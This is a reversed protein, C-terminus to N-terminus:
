QKVATIERIKSNTIGNEVEPMVFTKFLQTILYREGVGMERESEALKIDKGTYFIHSATEEGPVVIYASTTIQKTARFAMDYQKGLYDKITDKIEGIQVPKNLHAFLGAPYYIQMQGLTHENLESNDIILGICDAVDSAIDTTPDTWLGSAAATGGKGAVITTKIDSDKSWALGRAAAVLSYRMQVSDLGRANAEDTIMLEVSEKEMVENITFWDVKRYRARAGEAIKQPDIRKTKPLMLKLELGDMGQMVVADKWVMLEEAKLYVIERLLEKKAEDDSTIVGNYGDDFYQKM